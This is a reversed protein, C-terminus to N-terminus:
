SITANPNNIRRRTIPKIRAACPAWFSNPQNPPGPMVPQVPAMFRIRMRGALYGGMAFAIIQSIILWGIAAATVTSASLGKGAWPSVSSLGFGAGLAVLILSLAAATFAGGIVAAWSVSSAFAEVNLSSDATASRM